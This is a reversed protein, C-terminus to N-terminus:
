QLIHSWNHQYKIKSSLLSLRVTKDNVLIYKKRIFLNKVNDLLPGHLVLQAPANRSACCSFNQFCVLFLLPKLHDITCDVGGVFVWKKREYHVPIRKLLLKTQAGDITYWSFNEQENEIFGEVRRSSFQKRPYLYRTHTSEIRLRCLKM